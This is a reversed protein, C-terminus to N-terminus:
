GKEKEDKIEKSYLEGRTRDLAAEAMLYDYIGEALNEEVQALSVQADLIDLNTGEGNDYRVQALRLAEKAEEISDKQSQIIALSNRLDLCAQRIDVAIQDTLNSKEIGAQSYRAKAEEVKAKSSFGDFIPVTVSIGMGWNNHKPNFMDKNNSSRYYYSGSADIQPRFGAKALEIGWKSIDIDLSKLIMRPQNLYAQKLFENENINIEAYELRGLLNVENQVKLGLLKNFEAMILKISNEANILEPTVKSVQVKSQLLDFRSATGQEYKKKVDLYHAEAQDVLDQAIRKTEYALLLGYFLRRTDFEVDLKASRLVEEQAKLELQSQKFNAINAGGDFINDYVSVGLNNDNEYGTFVGSDKKLTTGPLTTAPAVAGNRTYSANLNVKPLFESRAGLIRAKSVEIEQEQVQIYKNNSFATNIAEKLSLAAVNSENDQASCSYATLFLLVFFAIVSNAGVKTFKFIISKLEKYFPYKTNARFYRANARYESILIGDEEMKNITKQFVGPKKGLHRGIEQMYFDKAPHGYFLKLLRTKNKTLELM